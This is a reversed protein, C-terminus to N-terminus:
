QTEYTIQLWNIASCIDWTCAELNLLSLIFLTEDAEFRFGASLQHRRQTITNTWDILWSWVPEVSPCSGLLTLKTSSLDWALIGLFALWHAFGYLVGPPWHCLELRLIVRIVPHGIVYNLGLFLETHTACRKFPLWLCLTLLLDRCSSSPEAVGFCRTNLSWCKECRCSHSSTTLSM